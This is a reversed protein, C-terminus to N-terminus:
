RIAGDFEFYIVASLLIIFLYADTNFLLLTRILPRKKAAFTRVFLLSHTHLSLTSHPTCVIDVARSHPIDFEIRSNRGMKSYATTKQFM